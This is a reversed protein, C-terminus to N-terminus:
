FLELERFGSGDGRVIHGGSGEVTECRAASAAFTWTTNLPNGHEPFDVIATIIKVKENAIGESIATAM